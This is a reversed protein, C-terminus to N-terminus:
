FSRSSSSWSPRAQGLTSITQLCRRHGRQEDAAGPQASRSAWGVTGPPHQDQVAGPRRRLSGSLERLAHGSGAMPGTDAVGRNVCRGGGAALRSRGISIMSTLLWSWAARGLPRTFSVRPRHVWALSLSSDAGRNTGKDCIPSLAFLGLVLQPAVLHKCGIAPWYWAQVVFLDHIGGQVGDVLRQLLGQSGPGLNLLALLQILQTTQQQGQGGAAEAEFVAQPLQDPEQPGRHHIPLRRTATGRDSRDQPGALGQWARAAPHGQRM